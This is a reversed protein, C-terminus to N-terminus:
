RGSPKPDLIELGLLITLDSRSPRVWVVRGQSSRWGDGTLVLEVTQGPVVYSGNTQIKVGHQSTDIANAPRSTKGKESDVVLVAPLSTAVRETRRGSLRKHKPAPLSVPIASGGTFIIFRKKDAPSDPLCRFRFGSNVQSLNELTYMM